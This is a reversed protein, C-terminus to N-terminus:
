LYTRRYNKLILVSKTKEDSSIKYVTYINIRLSFYRQWKQRIEKKIYDKKLLEGELFYCNNTSLTWYKDVNNPRKTYDITCRNIKESKKKIDYIKILKMLEYGSFNFPSRTIEHFEYLFKCM